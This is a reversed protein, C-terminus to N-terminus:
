KSIFHVTPLSLTIPVKITESNKNWTKLLYPWIADGDKDTSSLFNIISRRHEQTIIGINSLYVSERLTYLNFIYNFDTCDPFSAEDGIIIHPFLLDPRPEIFVIYSKEGYNYTGIIATKTNM